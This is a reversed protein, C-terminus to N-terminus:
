CSEVFLLQDILKWHRVKDIGMLRTLQDLKRTDDVDDDWAAPEAQVQALFDYAAVFADRGVLALCEKALSKKRDELSTMALPSSPVPSPSPDSGYGYDDDSDSLDDDHTNDTHAAATPRKGGTASIIHRLNEIRRTYQALHQQFQEVELSSASVEDEEAQLSAAASAPLLDSNLHLALHADDYILMTAADDAASPPSSSLTNSYRRAGTQPPTAGSQMAHMQREEHAAPGNGYFDKTRQEAKVRDTFYERRAQMLRAQEASAEEIKKAAKAALIRDKTSGYLSSSSGVVSAGAQPLPQPLTGSVHRPRPVVPVDNQLSHRRSHHAAVNVGIRAKYQLPADFAAPLVTSSSFSTTATLLPPHSSPGLRPSADESPPLPSRPKYSQGAIARTAIRPSSEGVFLGHEEDMRTLLEELRLRDLRLRDLEEKEHQLTLEIDGTSPPLPPSPCLGGTAFAAAAAAAPPFPPKHTRARGRRGAASGLEPSSSASAVSPEALAAHRSVAVKRKLLKLSDAHGAPPSVSPPPPSLEMADVEAAAANAAALAASMSSASAHNIRRPIGNVRPSSSHSNTPSITAAMATPPMPAMPPLAAPSPSRQHRGFASSQKGKLRSPNLSPSNTRSSTPLSPLTVNGNFGPSTPTSGHLPPTPSRVIGGASPAANTPAIIPLNGGSSGASATSEGSTSAMSADYALAPGKAIQAQAQAQAQKVKLRNARLAQMAQLREFEIEIRKKAEEEMRLEELRAAHERDMDTDIDIPPAHRRRRVTPPADHSDLDRRPAAVLTRDITSAADEVRRVPPRVRERTERVGHSQQDGAATAAAAAAASKKEHREREVEAFLGSLPAGIRDLQNRLNVVHAPQYDSAAADSLVHRIYKRIAKFLAPMLLIQKVSPRSSPTVGLMSKILERLDKSYSTAIPPYVGHIM